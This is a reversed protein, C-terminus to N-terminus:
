TFHRVGPKVAIAGRKVAGITGIDLLPIRKKTRIASLPGLEPRAFGYRTLDGFALRAVARGISDVLKLPQNRLRRSPLQTPLGFFDRPLINVPSRVALSPKARHELLDLAIEAGTNGAGVVLVRQGAYRAGSAYQVSHVLSGEFQEQGPLRDPNPVRNYGAAMV